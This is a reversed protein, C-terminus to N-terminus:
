SQRTAMTHIANVSTFDLPDLEAPDITIGFDEELRHALWVVALSDLALDADDGIDDIPAAFIQRDALIRRVDSKSLM